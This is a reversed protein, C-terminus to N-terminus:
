RRGRWWFFAILLWAAGSVLAMRRTRPPENFALTVATASAPLDILLAGNEDPKVTLSQAGDTAQWYPYYYTKVRAAGPPGAAVQFVRLEPQWVSITVGRGQATEVPTAMPPMKGVEQAALPLWDKHSVGNRSDNILEEFQRRPLYDTDLWIIKATYGSALLFGLLLTFYRPSMQRWATQWTQAAVGLLLAGALSVVTLWRFPFQVERLKPVIWWVPRSLDTTMLLAGVCLIAVARLPRQDEGRLRLALAPALYAITLGGLLSAFWTNLHTAAFPSFLFNRRYDYYPNAVAASSKILPLEALMTAWFTASAALGLVVAIALLLLPRAGDRWKWRLLVYAFLALSGIVTLPLHSFILLAYAMALGAVDRLRAERSVLREVYCFAFPLVACAAYEALFSAQYFENLLFPALIAAIGARLAAPASLKLARAWCYVGCGRGVTLLTFAALTAAHWNGLSRRLVAFLCYLAPPYFRFRADGWGFNSEALWGPTGWNHWADYFPLAFRFHNTLDAGQPIGRWFAPFMALATAALLWVAIRWGKLAPAAHIAAVEEPPTTLTNSIAPLPTM